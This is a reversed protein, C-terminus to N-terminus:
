PIRAAISDVTPVGLVEREFWPRYDEHVWRALRRIAAILKYIGFVSGTDGLQLDEVLLIEGLTNVTAFLLLWRKRFISIVPLSPLEVSYGVFQRLRKFQATLWTSIQIHAKDEDTAIVISIVIPKFRVWEASTQNINQNQESKLKRIIHNHLVINGSSRDRPPYIVIAFDMLESQKVSDWRIYPLLSPPTIRAASIEKYWVDPSSRNDRLALHLVRSYVEDKWSAKSNGDEVCEVTARFICDVSSRFLRHGLGGIDEEESDKTCVSDRIHTGAAVLEDKVRRSIVGEGCSILELDRVLDKLTTPIAEQSWQRTLVPWDSSRFDIFRLSRIRRPKSFKRPVQAEYDENGPLGELWLDISSDGTTNASSFM